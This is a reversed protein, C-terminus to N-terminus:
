RQVNGLELAEVADVNGNTFHAKFTPWVAWGTAKDKHRAQGHTSEVEAMTWGDISPLPPGIERRTMEAMALKTTAVRSVETKTNAVQAIREQEIAQKGKIATWACFGVFLIGFLFDFTVPREPLPMPTHGSAILQMNMEGVRERKYWNEVHMTAHVISTIAFLWMVVPAGLSLVFFSPSVFGAAFFGFVALFSFITAFSLVISVLAGLISGCMMVALPPCLLSIFYRM